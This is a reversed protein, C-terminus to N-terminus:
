RSGNQDIPLTVTFETGQSPISRVTIEGGHREVIRRAIALGIGSGEYESRGVLRKFPQFIREALDQNFGIGNDQVVIQTSAPSNQRSFVKVEPKGGPPQFKLANGILNQLLQRMQLADAKITPLEGVEVKGGTQTILLELDSIVEQAIEYLDVPQFPQAHTTLRSLQLLGDVMKRMRGASERMREFQDRQSGTLNAAEELILNGFAEIKRLPEQLDHSAVFAFEQLDRNSRELEKTYVELVAESRKRETIDQFYVSIGQETPYLHIEVWQDLFASYSEYHIPQKDALAQRIKLYSETQRGSPFVEWINKGILDKPSKKWLSAAKQNVYTFREEQDLSYFADSFSELIEATQRHAAELEMEKQKQGTIDMAIGAMRHTKGKEDQFSRSLGRVWHISGDPWIVRHEVDIQTGKQIAEGVMTRIWQLDDPHISKFGGEVSPQISKPELGFIRYYEDSWHLTNTDLDWSWAGAGSAALALRLKEESERLAEEAGKQKTVDRWAIAFGDGLRTIRFDFFKIDTGGLARFDLPFREKIITEGKEVAQIYLDFIETKHFDPYLELLRKGIYDKRKRGTLQCAAENVYEVRFDLIDGDENRIAAYITFADLLNEILDVREQEFRKREIAYRISRELLLPNADSKTLYLTAGALIAEVDADDNGRGSFLILPARYGQSSFERILDIGTHPGLDYDVLVADFQNSQLCEQGAQYSSAWVLSIKREKVQSLLERTLLFDDEDDDVLLIQWAPRDPKEM